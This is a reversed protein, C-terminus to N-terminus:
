LGEQTADPNFSNNHDRGDFSTGQADFGHSYLYSPHMSYYPVASPPVSSVNRMMMSIMKFPFDREKHRLTAHLEIQKRRPSRKKRGLGADNKKKKRAHWDPNFTPRIVWIIRTVQTM